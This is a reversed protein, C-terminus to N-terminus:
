TMSFARSSAKKIEEQLCDQETPLGKYPSWQVGFSDFCAATFPTKVAVPLGMILSEKQEQANKPAAGNGESM